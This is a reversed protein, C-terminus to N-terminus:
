YSSWCFFQPTRLFLTVKWLVNDAAMESAWDECKGSEREREGGGGARKSPYSVFRELHGWASTECMGGGEHHPSRDTVLM